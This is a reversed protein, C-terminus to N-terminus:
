QNENNNGRKDKIVRNKEIYLLHNLNILTVYTYYMFIFLTIIWKTIQLILTSDTSILTNFYVLFATAILCSITNIINLFGYPFDDSFLNSIISMAIIIAVYAYNIKLDILIWILIIYEITTISFSIITNKRMNLFMGYININDINFKKSITKLTISIIILFIISVLTFLAFSHILPLYNNM